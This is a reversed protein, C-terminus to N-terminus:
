TPAIAIIKCLAFIIASEVQPRGCHITCCQKTFITFPAAIKCCFFFSLNANNFFVLTNPTDTRLPPSQRRIIFIKIQNHQAYTPASFFTYQKIIFKQIRPWKPIIIIPIVTKM